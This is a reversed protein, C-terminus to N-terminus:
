LCFYFARYVFGGCEAELLGIVSAEDFDEIRISAAGEGFAEVDVNAKEAGPRRMVAIKFAVKEGEAGCVVVM